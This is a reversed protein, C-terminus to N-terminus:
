KYVDKNVLSPLTQLMLMFVYYYIVSM